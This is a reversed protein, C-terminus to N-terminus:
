GDWFLLWDFCWGPVGFLFLITRFLDINSQDARLLRPLVRVRLLPVYVMIVGLFGLRWRPRQQSCGHTCKQGYINIVLMRYNPAPHEMCSWDLQSVLVRFKQGGQIGLALEGPEPLNKTWFHNGVAPVWWWRMFGGLESHFMNRSFAVPALVHFWIVFSAKTTVLIRYWHFLFTGYLVKVKLWCDCFSRM